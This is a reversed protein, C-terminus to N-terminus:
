TSRESWAQLPQLEGRCWGPLIVRDFGPGVELKRLVWEAHMLAAVSIGLVQVEYDFCAQKSLPELVKRLSFEALRGTM